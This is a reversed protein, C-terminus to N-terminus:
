FYLFSIYVPKRVCNFAGWESVPFAAIFFLVSYVAIQVAIHPMKFFSSEGTYILAFVFTILVTNVFIRAKRFVAENQMYNAPIFYNYLNHKTGKM